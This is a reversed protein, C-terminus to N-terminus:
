DQRNSIYNYLHDIVQDITMESTDVVIAGDPIALPSAERTSDRHDRQIQAQLVDELKVTPDKQKLQLWRRKARCEPSADLYFKFAAQPFVITGQDRGETVLSGAQSGIRQQQAVLQQRVEPVSAIFHANATVEATRIATTVDTGDVFVKGLNENSGLTIETQETLQVLANGNSLDVAKSLAAWTVARYMAGTDLYTIKLKQALLAAVTSKGSGAPGDITVILNKM